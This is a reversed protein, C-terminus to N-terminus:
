PECRCPDAACHPCADPAHREWAAVMEKETLGSSATPGNWGCACGVDHIETLTHHGPRIVNRFRRILRHGEPPSPQTM